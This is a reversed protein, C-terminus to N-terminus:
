PALDDLAVIAEDVGTPEAWGRVKGGEAAPGRVMPARHAVRPAADEVDAAAASPDREVQLFTPLLDNPDIDRGPRDLGASAAADSFARRSEISSTSSDSPRKSVITM